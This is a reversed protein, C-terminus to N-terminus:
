FAASIRGYNGRLADAYETEYRNLQMNDPALGLAQRLYSVARREDDRRLYIEFLAILSNLNRSDEFLSSRLDNM